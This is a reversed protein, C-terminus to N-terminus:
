GHLDWQADVTVRTVWYNGREAPTGESDVEAAFCSVGDFRQGRFVAAFAKALVEGDLTGSGAPTFIRAEIRALQRWLNAGRGGGYGALYERESLVELFAFSEPTAEPIDGNVENPYLVPIATFNAAARARILARAEDLTTM